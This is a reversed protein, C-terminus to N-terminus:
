GVVARLTIHKEQTKTNWSITITPQMIILDRRHAENKSYRNWEIRNQKTKNRQYKTAAVTWNGWPSWSLKMQDWRMRREKKGGLIQQMRKSQVPSLLLVTGSWLGCGSHEWIMVHHRTETQCLLPKPQFVWHDEPSIRKCYYYLVVFCFTLSYCIFLSLSCNKKQRDLINLDTMDAAARGM